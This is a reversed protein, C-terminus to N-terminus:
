HRRLHEGRLVHRGGSSRQVVASRWFGGSSFSCSSSSSVFLEFGFTVNPNESGAHQARVQCTDTPNKGDSSACIMSNTIVPNLNYHDRSNCKTRNIVTVNASMLVNSLKPRKTSTLGWGAVRCMSGVKPEQVKKVKDLKLWSVTKTQKVKKKLQFQFFFLFFVVFSCFILLINEM